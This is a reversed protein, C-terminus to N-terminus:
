GELSHWESRKVGDASLPFYIPVKRGLRQIVLNEHVARVIEPLVPLFPKRSM